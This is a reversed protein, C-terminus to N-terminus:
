SGIMDKPRMTNATRTALTRIPQLDDESVGVGGAGGVAETLVPPIGAELGGAVPEALGSIEVGLGDVVRLLPVTAM